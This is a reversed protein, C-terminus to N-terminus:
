SSDYLSAVELMRYPGPTVLSTPISKTLILDLFTTTKVSVVTLDDIRILKSALNSFQARQFGDDFRKFLVLDLIDDKIFDSDFWSIDPLKINLKEFLILDVTNFM